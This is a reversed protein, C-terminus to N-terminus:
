PTVTLDAWMGHHFHDPVNCILRYTGPALTVTLDGSKGPKLESVEGLSKLEDEKIRKTADDYPLTVKADAVPIVVMEHIYMKSLNKVHFTVSGAAVHDLDLVMSMDKSPPKSTIDLLQVNITSDAARAGAPLLVVALAAGLVIRRLNM